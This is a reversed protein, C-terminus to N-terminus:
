WALNGDAKKDDFGIVIILIFAPVDKNKMPYHHLDYVKSDTM